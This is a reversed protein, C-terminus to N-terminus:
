LSADLQLLTRITQHAQGQQQLCHTRQGGLAPKGDELILTGPIEPNASNDARLPADGPEAQIKTQAERGFGDSYVFSVQVPSEPGGPMNVHLERAITAAFVPQGDNKFRDLDYIIRTTASNLLQLAVEKPSRVFARLQEDSLDSVLGDLSDGSEPQGDQVKGQIATGALMGLTDFVGESRNHNADLVAKPQMVRYDYEARVENGLADRSM